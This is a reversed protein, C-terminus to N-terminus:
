TGICRYGSELDRYCGACYGSLEIGHFLDYQNQDDEDDVLAIDAADVAIDSGITGMAIGVDAAKLAPADNIGDGIMCVAEQKAQYNRIYKLKDEPLCGAYIEDIHLQGAIAKAANKNDGTLLVPQVNLERLAEITATSETRITDSLVIYGAFLGDISLYIATCGLNIFENVECLANESVTIGNESMMEANGAFVKKANIMASVGRGPIMQFQGAALVASTNEKCYCTLIAKGLPHESYQEAAACLSYLELDSINPQM